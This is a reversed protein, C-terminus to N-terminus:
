KKRRFLMLASIFLLYWLQIAGGSDINSPPPTAAPHTDATPTKMEINLEIIEGSVVDINGLVTPDYGTSSSSITVNEASVIM